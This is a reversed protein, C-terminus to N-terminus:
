SKYNKMELISTRKVHSGNGLKVFGRLSGGHSVTREAHFLVMGQDSFFRELPKVSHYALHEHYITDFLTKEFVDLLYSVEFIFVGNKSLLNKIGCTIAILDDAHAFVNNACILDARGYSKKLSWVDFKFKRALRSSVDKDWCRPLVYRCLKLKINLM